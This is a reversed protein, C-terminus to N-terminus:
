HASLPTYLSAPPHLIQTFYACFFARGPLIASRRYPLQRELRGVATPSDQLCSKKKKFNGQLINWLLLFIHLIPIPLYGGPSSTIGTSEPVIPKLLLASFAQFEATQVGWKATHKVRIRSFDGCITIHM